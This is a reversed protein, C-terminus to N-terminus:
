IFGENSYKLIYKSYCLTNCSSHLFPEKLSISVWKLQCVSWKLIKSFRLNEDQTDLLWAQKGCTWPPAPTTPTCLETQSFVQPESLATSRRLDCLWLCAKQSSSLSTSRWDLGREAILQYWGEEPLCPPIPRFVFRVKGEGDFVDIRM